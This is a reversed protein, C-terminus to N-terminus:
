DSEEPADITASFTTRLFRQFENEIFLQWLRQPINVHLHMELQDLLTTAKGISFEHFLAYLKDLKSTKCRKRKVTDLMSVFCQRIDDSAKKLQEKKENEFSIMLNLVDVIERTLM